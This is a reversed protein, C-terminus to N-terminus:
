ANLAVETLLKAKGDITYVVGDRIMICLYKNADPLKYGYGVIRYNFLNTDKDYNWYLETSKDGIPVCGANRMEDALYSELMQRNKVIWEQDVAVGDVVHQMMLDEVKLSRMFLKFLHKAARITLIWSVIFRKVKKLLTDEVEM